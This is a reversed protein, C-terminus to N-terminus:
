LRGQLAVVYRLREALDARSPEAALHGRLSKEELDFPVPKGQLSLVACLRDVLDLREPFDALHFRLSREELALPIPKAQASLVACLRQTLDARWPDRSLHIQLSREELDPPVAEGRTSLDACRALVDQEDATLPAPPSSQVLPENERGLQALVVKLRRALEANDPDSALQMRLGIMKLELPDTM